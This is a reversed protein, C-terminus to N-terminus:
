LLRELLNAINMGGQNNCLAASKLYANLADERRGQQILADGLFSFYRAKKPYLETFRQSIIEVKTWQKLNLYCNRLLNFIIESNTNESYLKELYAAAGAYNRRRLLDRAVQLQQNLVPNTLQPAPRPVTRPEVTQGSVSSALSTLCFGIILLRTIPTKM